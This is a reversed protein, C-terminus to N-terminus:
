LGYRSKTANFNQTIEAQTLARNYIQVIAVNGGMYNVTGSDAAIRGEKVGTQSLLTQNAITGELVGNTYIKTSASSYTGCSNFWAGTRTNTTSQVRNGYYGTISFTLITKAVSDWYLSWTNYGGGIELLSTDQTSTTYKYWVNFTMEGANTILSSDINFSCYDNTGDFVISGSNASNFTPGNTLTGNNGGSIVNYWTTGTTPYSPTFGADLNLILGNTIVAPYDINCVIRDTQTAFYNLCQAATTYSAGAIRNTEAILAADNAASFYALNGTQTASYSYITYGGAAPTVGNYYGTTASPGKGVDGTGIWLNGKKLALTQASASYKISNPL